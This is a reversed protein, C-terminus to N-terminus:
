ALRERVATPGLFAQDYLNRFWLRAFSQLEAKFRVNVHMKQGDEAYRYMEQFLALYDNQFSLPDAVLETILVM